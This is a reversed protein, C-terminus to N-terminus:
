QQFPINFDGIAISGDTEGKLETLIHKIYKPIGIKPAYVLIRLNLHM